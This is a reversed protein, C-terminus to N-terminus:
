FLITQTKFFTVMLWFDMLMAKFPHQVSKASLLYSLYRHDVESQPFLSSQDPELRRVFEFFDSSLHKRLFRKKRTVYGLNFLREILAEHSYFFTDNGNKIGNFLQHSFKAFKFVLMPCKDSKVGISPLLNPKIHPRPPLEKHVLYIQHKWCAEIGPIQHVVHWYTVGYTEIDQEACRPCFKLSLVESQKFCAVQSARTAASADNNLLSQYITDAYVPLFYSFYKGLTQQRFIKLTTEDSIKAANKIGITLYPHISARPKKLLCGLYESESVGLITMHRIFRSYLMEGKLTKPLNM